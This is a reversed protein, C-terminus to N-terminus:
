FEDAPAMIFPVSCEGLAAQVANDSDAIDRYPVPDLWSSELGVDSTGKFAVRQFHQFVIHPPHYQGPRYDLPPVITERVQTTSIRFVKPCTTRVTSGKLLRDRLVLMDTHM